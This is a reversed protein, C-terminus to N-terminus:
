EGLPEFTLSGSNNSSFYQRITAVSQQALVARRKRTKDDWGSRIRECEEKIEEETPLREKKRMDKTYM